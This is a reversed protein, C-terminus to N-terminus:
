WSLFVEREEPLIGERRAMRQGFVHCADATAPRRALSDLWKMVDPHVTNQGAPAGAIGHEVLMLAMEPDDESVAQMWPLCAAALEPSADPLVVAGECLTFQIYMRLERLFEPQGADPSVARIAREVVRTDATEANQVAMLLRIANMRSLFWIGHRDSQGIADILTLAAQHWKSALLEAYGELSKAHAAGEASRLQAAKRFTRAIFTSQSSLLSADVRMWLALEDAGVDGHMVRKGRGPDVARACALLWSEEVAINATESEAFFLPFVSFCLPDQPTSAALVRARFMAVSEGPEQRVLRAGYADLHREMSKARDGEIRGCYMPLVGAGDGDRYMRPGLCVADHAIVDLVQGERVTEPLVGYEPVRKRVAALDKHWASDPVAIGASVARRPAGGACGLAACALVVILFIVPLCRLKSM